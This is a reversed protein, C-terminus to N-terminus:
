FNCIKQALQIYRCYDHHSFRDWIANSILKQEVKQPIKRLSINQWNEYLQPMEPAAPIDPLDHDEQITRGDELIQLKVSFGDVFSGDSIELVVTVNEPPQPRPSSLVM